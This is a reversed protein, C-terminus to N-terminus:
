IIPPKKEQYPFGCSVLFNINGKIKDKKIFNPAFNVNQARVNTAFFTHQKSQKIKKSSKQNLSMKIVNEFDDKVVTLIIKDNNQVVKQIDYYSNKLQLEKKDSLANWYDISVTITNTNQKKCQLYTRRLNNLNEIFSETQLLPTVIAFFTSFLILVIKNKM